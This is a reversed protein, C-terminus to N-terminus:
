ESDNLTTCQYTMTQYYCPKTWDWAVPSATLHYDKPIDEDDDVDRFYNRVAQRVLRTVIGVEKRSEAAVEISITTTDTDGEYDDKTSEENQMGDFMVIIYPTQTNDQETPPVEFCTSRIRGGTAAIVKEDSMLANYFVEDTTLAM